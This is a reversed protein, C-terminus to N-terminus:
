RPAFGHLEGADMMEGGDGGVRAAIVVEVGAHHPHPQHLLGGVLVVDSSYLMGAVTAASEGRVTAAAVASLVASVEARPTSKSVGGANAIQAFAGVIAVVATWGTRQTM